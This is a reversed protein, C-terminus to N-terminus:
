AVYFFDFVSGMFLINYAIGSVLSLVRFPKIWRLLFPVEFMLPLTVLAQGMIYLTNGLLFVNGEAWWHNWFINVYLNWSFIALLVFCWPFGVLWM